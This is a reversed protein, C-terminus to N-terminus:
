EFQQPGTGVKLQQQTIIAQVTRGAIYLNSQTRVNITPSFNKHTLSDLRNLQSTMTGLTRAADASRRAAETQQLNELEAATARSRKFESQLGAYGERQATRAGNDTVPLPRTSTPTVGPIKNRTNTNRNFVTNEAATTDGGFAGEGAAILAAAGVIATIAVAISAATAVTAAVGGGAAAGEVANVVGGAAGGGGNVVAANINVVGANMGLVGKILGSGLTGVISSLAGGTL